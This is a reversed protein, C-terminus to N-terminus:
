LRKKSGLIGFCQASRDQLMNGLRLDALVSQRFIIKVTREGTKPEDEDRAQWCCNWKENKGVRMERQAHRIKEQDREEKQNALFPGLVRSSITHNRSRRHHRDAQHEDTDRNKQSTLSSAVLRM